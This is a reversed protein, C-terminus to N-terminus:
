FRMFRGLRDSFQENRDEHEPLHALLLSRLAEPDVKGIQLSVVPFLRRTTEVYLAQSDATFVMWFGKLEGWAYLEGNVHLGEQDFVVRMMRPKLRAQNTLALAALIPVLASLVGFFTLKYYWLVLGSLVIGAAWVSAIWGVGREYHYFEPAEWALTRQELTQAVDMQKEQKEGGEAM